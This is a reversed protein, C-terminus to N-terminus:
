IHILSLDLDKLIGEFEGTGSYPDFDDGWEDDDADDDGTFPDFAVASTNEADDPDRDETGPGDASPDFKVAHTKVPSLPEPHEARETPEPADTM